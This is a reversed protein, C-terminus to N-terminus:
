LNLLKYLHHSAISKNRNTPTNSLVFLTILAGDIAVAVPTLVIKKTRDAYDSVEINFKYEKNSTDIKDYNVGSKPSYRQGSLIINKKFINGDSTFGFKNFFYIDEENLDEDSNKPAKSKIAISGTIKNIESVRFNYNEIELKSKNIWSLLKILTQSEDDFVYHYKKGIIVIKKGDETAMFNKFNEVYYSRKWLHKTCSTLNTIILIAILISKFISM